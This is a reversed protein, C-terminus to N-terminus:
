HSKTQPKLLKIVKRPCKNYCNMCGVCKSYDIIPVNNILHIADHQCVKQCMGCSICGNKCMNIVDKGKCQTSCAVYIKASKPIRKILKKPCTKICLGCSICLEKDVHAYGDYCEIALNPCVDVCSGSGMCGVACEKRGKALIEQSVCDGYGQYDFKDVCNVGGNCSVVAITEEKGSFTKGLINCIEIKNTKSTAGCEDISVDGNVLARAFGDCGPYGCSGCNAGSLLSSVEAIKPDEKVVCFKSILIILLGFVLGIAVMIAVVLGIKTWDISALTLFLM